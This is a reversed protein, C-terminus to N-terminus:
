TLESVYQIKFISITFFGFKRLKQRHKVEYFKIYNLSHTSSFYSYIRSLVVIWMRLGVKEGSEPPLIFGMVSCVTIIVSPLVFNFTFFLTRRRFNLTIIVVEYYNGEGDNIIASQEQTTAILYIYIYIYDCNILKYIIWFTLIIVILVGNVM